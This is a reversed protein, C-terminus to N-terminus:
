AANAPPARSRQSRLITPSSISVLVSALAATSTRIATAPLAQGPLPAPGATAAFPCLTHAGSDKSHDHGHDGDGHHHHAHHEHGAPAAIAVGSCLELTLRGDANMMPMFGAPIGARYLLAFLLTLTVAWRSRKTVGRKGRMLASYIPLMSFSESIQLRNDTRRPASRTRRPARSRTSRGSGRNLSPFDAAAVAAHQHRFEVGVGRVRVDLGRAEVVRRPDSRTRRTNGDCVVRARRIPRSASVRRRSEMRSVVCSRRYNPWTRACAIRRRV